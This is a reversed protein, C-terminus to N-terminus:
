VLVEIGVNVGSDRSRPYKGIGCRYIQILKEGRCPFISAIWTQRGRSVLLPMKNDGVSEAFVRERGDSVVHRVSVEPATPSREEDPQGHAIHTFDGEQETYGALALGLDGRHRQEAVILCNETLELRM